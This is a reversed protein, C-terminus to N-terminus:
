YSASTFIRHKGQSHVNRYKLIYKNSAQDDDLCLWMSTNRWRRSDACFSLAGESNVKLLLFSVDLAPWYILMFRANLSEEIWSSFPVHQVCNPCRQHISHAVQQFRVQLQDHACDAVGELIGPM